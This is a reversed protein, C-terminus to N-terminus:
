GAARVAGSAAASSRRAGCSVLRAVLAARRARGPDRWAPDRRCRGRRSGRQRGRGSMSFGIGASWGVAATARRTM